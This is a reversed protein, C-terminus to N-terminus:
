THLDLANSLYLVETKGNDRRYNVVKLIHLRSAPLQSPMGCYRWSECRLYRDSASGTKRYGIRSAIRQCAKSARLIDLELFEQTYQIAFKILELGYGLRRYRPNVYLSHFYGPKGDPKIIQSSARGPILLTIHHEM